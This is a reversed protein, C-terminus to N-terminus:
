KLHPARFVQALKLHSFARFLINNVHLTRKNEQSCQTKKNNNNNCFGCLFDQLPLFDLLETDKSISGKENLNLLAKFFFGDQFFLGLGLYPPLCHIYRM